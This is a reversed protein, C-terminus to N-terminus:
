QDTKSQQGTAALSEEGQDPLAPEGVVILHLERPGHAGHVLHAEIDATKSPGTIFVFSDPIKKTGLLDYADKLTAVVNDKRVVAIHISPVLSTSRPCGPSTLQVLTASEAICYSPATIGIFSEGTKARVEKDSAFTTHVTVAERNFKKWLRLRNLDPHDHLVIHKNHSFEPDKTRVLEVIIDVTETYSAASHVSINQNAANEKLIELLPLPDVSNESYDRAVPEPQQPQRGPDPESGAAHHVAVGATEPTDAYKEKWIEGFTQRAIPQLDRTDTWGRALGGLTRVMGNKKSTFPRQILRALRILSRYIFSSTVVLQWGTFIYSERVNHQRVNWRNSGYALTYRLESLMRPLDNKVPCVDLCAGCLTEGKCLDAHENVGSLLPTIVAGIPGCYTSNYAHGGIKGYVPCVNLCAGCRICALVERFEPSALIKSRGNDIIILHFEEPGDPDDEGAPGGIFSVYTSLPQQTAARVLLELTERHEEFTPAVREMGMFAVHIKPMTTAMRINGENSVLSIHGTEACALNCGTIGMDANLLKERLAKRAAMTLSPPDDTYDIGLKEAFLEGIDNRDLHICPAIIHSPQQQALQVIYEGLDTEVVEIGDQELAQDINIEMSLMSKGKVVSRVGNRRAIELACDIAEQGDGAFHVHGGRKRINSALQALITDLGAFSEMRSKKVRDRKGPDEMNRWYKVAGKGFRDQLGTLGKQLPQSELAQKAKESYLSRTKEGM